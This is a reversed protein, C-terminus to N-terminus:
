AQNKEIISLVTKILLYTDLNNYEVCRLINLFFTYFKQIRHLNFFKIFKGTSRKYFKSIKYNVNSRKSKYLKNKM